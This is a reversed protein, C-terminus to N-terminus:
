GDAPRRTPTGGFTNLQTGHGQIAVRANGAAVVRQDVPGASGLGNVKEVLARLQEAAQPDEELLDVLRATWAARVMAVAQEDGAASVEARARELKDGVAQERVADGRGFLHAFGAKTAAWGDAAM